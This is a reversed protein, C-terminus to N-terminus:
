GAKFGIHWHTGDCFPKNRSGGCRCLTQRARLEYPEGRASVVQIAGTLRYPGDQAPSVQPERTEEVLQDSGPAAHRLAGSPCTAIVRAITEPAAGDPDIWPETELKFVSALNDTCHGAHSCVSRDDHITIGSGRYVDERGAIPGHDAREAGEFGVKAHTGDCFPKTSSRGCRCLFYTAPAEVVNGGADRVPIGGDVRYPGNETVRVLPGPSDPMAM